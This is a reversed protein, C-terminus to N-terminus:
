YIEEALTMLYANVSKSKIKRELDTNILPQAILAELVAKLPSTSPSPGPKSLQSDALGASSMAWHSPAPGGLAGHALDSSRLFLGCEAPQMVKIFNLASPTCHIFLCPSQRLPANQLRLSFICSRM